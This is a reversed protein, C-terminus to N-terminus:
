GREAARCGRPREDRSRLLRSHWYDPKEFDSRGLSNGLAQTGKALAEFFGAIDLALVYRDVVPPGLLSEGFKRGLQNAPLNRYDGRDSAEGCCERGLTCRRRDGDHEAHKVVRNL